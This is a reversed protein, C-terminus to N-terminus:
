ENKNTKTLIDYLERVVGDGGKKKTIIQAIDLIEFHADSPAVPIGIYQMVEKDNLDNGIFVVKNKDINNEALYQKLVNRKNEVGHIYPIKIKEARRAVVENPETSIIIQKIGMNTFMGVALGDSRNAVVSEKGNQDVIVKNDTMVGDFDYAILQIDKINIEKM